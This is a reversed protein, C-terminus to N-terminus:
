VKFEKVKQKFTKAFVISEVEIARFKGNSKVFSKYNYDEIKLQKTGWSMRNNETNIIVIGDKTNFSIIKQEEKDIIIKRGLLALGEKHTM